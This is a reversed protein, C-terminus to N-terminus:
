MKNTGQPQPKNMPEEEALVEEVLRNRLPTKLSGTEVDRYLQPAGLEVDPGAERERPSVLWAEQSFESNSFGRDM